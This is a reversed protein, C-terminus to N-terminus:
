VVLGDPIPMPREMAREITSACPPRIQPRSLAPDPAVKVNESGRLVAAGGGYGATWSVKTGHVTGETGPWVRNVSMGRTFLKRGRVPSAAARAAAHRAAPQAGRSLRSSARARAASDTASASIASRWLSIVLASAPCSEVSDRTAMPMASLTELSSSSADSGWSFIIPSRRITRRSVACGKKRPFLAIRTQRALARVGREEAAAWRSSPPRSVLKRISWPLSTDPTSITWKLTSSEDSPSMPLSTRSLMTPPFRSLREPRSGPRSIGTVRSSDIGIAPSLAPTTCTLPPDSGKFTLRASTMGMLSRSHIRSSTLAPGQVAFASASFGSHPARRPDQERSQQRDAGAEEGPDLPAPRLPNRRRRGRAQRFQPRLTVPELGDEARGDEGAALLAQGFRRHRSDHDADRGAEGARDDLLDNGSEEALRRQGELVQLDVLLALDPGLHQDPFPGEALEHEVDVDVLHLPDQLRALRREDESRAGDVEGQGHPQGLALSARLEPELPVALAEGGVGDAAVDVHRALDPSSHHRCVVLDAAAELDGGDSVGDAQLRPERLQGHADEDIGGVLGPADHVAHHLLLALAALDSEALHVDLLLESADEPLSEVHLDRLLDELGDLERGADFLRELDLADLHRQLRPGGAEADRRVAEPVAGIEVEAGAAGGRLGSALGFM